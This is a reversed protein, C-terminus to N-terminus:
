PLEGSAWVEEFQRQARVYANGCEVQADWDPPSDCKKSPQYFRQWAEDKAQAMAADVRAQDAAAQLRQAEQRRQALELEQGRQRQQEAEAKELAYRAQNRAMAEETSAQIQETAQKAAAGVTGVVLALYLHFGIFIVVAAAVIGVAMQTAPHWQGQHEEM